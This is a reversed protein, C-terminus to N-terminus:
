QKTAVLYVICSDYARRNVLRLFCIHGRLSASSHWTQDIRGTETRNEHLTADTGVADDSSQCCRDNTNIIDGYRHM